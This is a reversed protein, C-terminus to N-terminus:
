EELFSLCTTTGPAVETYGADTVVYFGYKNNKLEEVTEFFKKDSAELVVVSDEPAIPVLCSLGLSAHVAQAALKGPSM